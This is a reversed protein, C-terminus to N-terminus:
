PKRDLVERVKLALGEPAFPKQLFHGGEAVLGQRVIADDTYGSMFLVKLDPQRKALRSALEPGSMEPMVVDTLLLHIPGEHHRTAELAQEPGSAEIVTYGNSQLIRRALSRVSQEDEVLLVTESGATPRKSPRRTGAARAAGEVRPLYIKFTTGRGPESYVWIYGGSQKVIGYVTALGLGTGKGKGKTTFFPEFIHSKTEASMGVGTDSVALMVYSGAPGVVLHERAYAEDLQVDKTEITLTGGKPMADRANIALNMVVQETQGADARVRGVDPDLATVLEIDEGILRRLMRQLNEVLENLDLVKPELVQRRSFALLQRTLSAAREGAKRIEGISESLPSEKGADTALLDAYGLIATLLNNFDHAIGGALQGVAEMKQSQRLQMELQRHETVDAALVLQADRRDFLLPNSTIEVQIITGDKKRHRWVGSDQYESQEAAIQRLLSPVEPPRIDRITMGLFEERSYGYHRCAAENVALFALTEEDFVWMPQPSSQFLLQYQEEAKRSARRQEAQDLERRVAPILRKLNGKLLYDHAGAKMVEVVVEEGVNGSVVIFPLDLETAQLLALAAPASFHPMNYDSIVLDWERTKLASRMAEATEVRECVADYGARKLELAFLRADDESDEVVLVRLLPVTM